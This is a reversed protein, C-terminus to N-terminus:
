HCAVFPPMADPMDVDYILWGRSTLELFLTQPIAHEHHHSVCQRTLASHFNASWTATLRVQARRGDRSV